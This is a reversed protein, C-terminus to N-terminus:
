IGQELRAFALLGKLVVPDIDRLMEAGLVSEQKPWVGVPVSRASSPDDPDLCKEALRLLVHIGRQSITELTGKDLDPPRHAGRAGNPLHSQQNAAERCLHEILRM